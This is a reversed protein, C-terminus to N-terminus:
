PYVRVQYFTQATPTVDFSPPAAGVVLTWPGNPQAAQLLTGHPWSLLLNTGFSQCVLTVPGGLLATSYLSQVDVPSLTRNFVAVEDMKGNFTGGSVSLTDAGIATPGDWPEVDHAIVNTASLLVGNSGLYLVAQSPAVALAVFSWQGPTVFLKSAWYYTDANDKNWTYGIENPPFRPGLFSLGVPYTSNRSFIVGAANSIPAFPYLWAVLTVANTELNLPPATVYGAGPASVTNDMAVGANASEFGYFPPDPVGSVGNTTNTGYTADLRNYYENAIASGNTDNFRWYYLPSFDMVQTAYQTVTFPAVAFNVSVSSTRAEATDYAEAYITHSGAQVDHLTCNFPATGTSAALSGDLFVNVLVISDNADQDSANVSVTLSTPGQFIQGNTPSTIACVNPAHNVNSAGLQVWIPIPDYISNNTFVQSNDDSNDVYTLLTQGTVPSYFEIHEKAAYYFVPWPLYGRQDALTVKTTAATGSQWNNTPSDSTREWIYSAPFDADVQIDVYKGLDPHYRISFDPAGDNMIAMADSLDSGPSNAWVKNTAYYQLNAAPNELGALPIRFLLFSRYDFGSVTTTNAGWLYAYGGAADVYTSVGITINTNDILDMRFTLPWLLPNPESEVNDMVAMDVAFQQFGSLAGVAGGTNRFRPLFLYIKGNYYFGDQMWYWWSGNADSGPNPFISTMAGQDRGRIYYEINTSYGNWTTIALSNHVLGSGTRNTSLDQRVLTDSFLWLITHRGDLSISAATDAGLWGQKLPFQPTFAAV